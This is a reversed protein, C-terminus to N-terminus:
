HRILVKIIVNDNKTMLNVPDQQHYLIKKHHQSNMKNTKKTMKLSLFYKSFSLM